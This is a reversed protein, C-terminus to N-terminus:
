RTRRIFPRQICMELAVPSPNSSPRPAPSWSVARGPNWTQRFDTGSPDGNSAAAVASHDANHNPTDTNPPSVEEEVTRPAVAPTVGKPLLFRVRIVPDGTEEATPHCHMGDLPRGSNGPNATLDTVSYIDGNASAM